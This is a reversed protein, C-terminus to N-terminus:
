PAVQIFSYVRANQWEGMGSTNNQRNKKQGLYNIKIKYINYLLFNHLALIKQQNNNIFYMHLYLM